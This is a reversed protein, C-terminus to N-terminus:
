ERSCTQIGERQQEECRGRERGDRGCVGAAGAGVVANRPPPAATPTTDVAHNTREDFNRHSTTSHKAASTAASALLFAKSALVPSMFPDKCAPTATRRPRSALQMDPARLQDHQLTPLALEAISPGRSSAQPVRPPPQLRPRVRPGALSTRSTLNRRARDFPAAAGPEVLFGTLAPTREARPLGKCRSRASPRPAARCGRPVMSEYPVPTARTLEVVTTPAKRRTRQQSRAVRRGHSRRATGDNSPVDGACDLLRPDRLMPEVAARPASCARSRCRLTPRPRLSLRWEASPPRSRLPEAAALDQARHSHRQTM